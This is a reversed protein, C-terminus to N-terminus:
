QCRALGGLSTSCSSGSATCDEFTAIGAECNVAWWRGCTIGFRLCYNGDASAGCLDSDEALPAPYVSACAPEGSVGLDACEGFPCGDGSCVSPQGLPRESADSSCGGTGAVQGGTGTIQGGTGNSVGGTADAGGSSPAGGSGAGGSATTGGTSGNTSEEDSDGCGLAVALAVLFLGHAPRVCVSLGREGRPAFGSLYTRMRSFRIRADEQMLSCRSFRQRRAVPIARLHNRRTRESVISRTRSGGHPPDGRLCSGASAQRASKAHAFSRANTRPDPACTSPAGCGSPTAERVSKRDCPSPSPLHRRRAAPVQELQNRRRGQPM